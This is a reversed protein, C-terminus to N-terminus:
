GMDKPWLGVLSIALNFYVCKKSQYSKIGLSLDSKFTNIEM